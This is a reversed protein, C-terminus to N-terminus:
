SNVKFTPRRFDWHWKVDGLKPFLSSKVKGLDVLLLAARLIQALSNEPQGGAVYQAGHGHNVYTAKM